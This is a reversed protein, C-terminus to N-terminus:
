KWIDDEGEWELSSEDKYLASEIEKIMEDKLNSIGGKVIYNGAIFRYLVSFDNTGFNEEIVEVNKLLYRQSELEKIDDIYKHTVLQGRLVIVEDGNKLIEKKASFNFNGQVKYEHKANRIKIMAM